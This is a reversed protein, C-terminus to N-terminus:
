LQPCHGGSLHSLNASGADPCSLVKGRQGIGVDANPICQNNRMPKERKFVSTFCSCLRLMSSAIICLLTSCTGKNETGGAIGQGGGLM